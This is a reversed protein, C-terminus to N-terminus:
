IASKSASIADHTNRLATRGMDLLEISRQFLDQAKSNAIQAINYAEKAM